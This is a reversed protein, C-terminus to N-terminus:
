GTLIKKLEDKRGAENMRQKLLLLYIGGPTRKRSGDATLMGGAAEIGAVEDRLAQAAEIGLTAVSREITAKPKPDTEGLYTAIEDVAQRFARRQQRENVAAQRKAEEVAQREKARSARM